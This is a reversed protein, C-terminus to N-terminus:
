QKAFHSLFLFASCHFLVCMCWFYRAVTLISTDDDNDIFARNVLMNEVGCRELIGELWQRKKFPTASEKAAVQLVGM